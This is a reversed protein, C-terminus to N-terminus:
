DYFEDKLLHELISAKEVILCQMAYKKQPPLTNDRFSDHHKSAQNQVILKIM